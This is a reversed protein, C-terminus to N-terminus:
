GQEVVREREAPGLLDAVVQDPEARGRVADLGGAAALPLREHRGVVLHRLWGVAAHLHADASTPRSASAARDRVTGGCCWSRSTTPRSWVPPSARWTGAFRRESNRRIPAPRRPPSCPRPGNGATSSARRAPPM